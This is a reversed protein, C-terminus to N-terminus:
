AKCHKNRCHLVEVEVLVDRKQMFAGNNYKNKLNKLLLLITQNVM